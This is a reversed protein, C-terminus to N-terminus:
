LDRCIKKAGLKKLKRSKWNFSGLMKSDWRNKRWIKGLPRSRKRGRLIEASKPRNWRSPMKKWKRKWSLKRNKIIKGWSPWVRQNNRRWDRFNNESRIRWLGKANGLRFSRWATGRAWIESDNENGTWRSQFYATTMQFNHPKQLYFNVEKLNKPENKRMKRFNMNEIWFRKSTNQRNKGWFNKSNPTNRNWIRFM